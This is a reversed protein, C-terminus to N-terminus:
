AAVLVARQVKEPHSFNQLVGNEDVFAKSYKRKFFASNTWGLKRLELHRELPSVSFWAEMM